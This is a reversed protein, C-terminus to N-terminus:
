GGLCAGAGEGHPIDGRVRIKFRYALTLWYVRWAVFFMTLLLGATNATSWRRPADHLFGM